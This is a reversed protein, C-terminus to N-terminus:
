MTKFKGYRLVENRVSAWTDAIGDCTAFFHEVDAIEAGACAM